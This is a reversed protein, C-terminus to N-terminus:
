WLSTRACRRERGSLDYWQDSMRLLGVRFGEPDSNADMATVKFFARCMGDLDARTYALTLNILHRRSYHSLVGTIGFDIYGVVNDPLIMLNAPHLDAHFLGHRFADGLFNEIVSRAFREPEFGALELRRITTEDGTERARLYGLLTSGEFFEMVLTRRTTYRWLVEPVREVPNDRANIRLQDMYRAENRYDLEEVTWGIFESLPEIMWALPKIRLGRITRVMTRMLRIDGAFDTEVNPRQVKVALKRGALYAVHVQGISATAIPETEFVDFTESPAAGIEARFIREVDAYGFPAVRDLLRSLAHCYEFPIVDTQLALMQGFKIFTGGLDELLMRLREPGCAGVAPLLRALLRAGRPWRALRPGLLHALGHLLAIRVIWAFRRLNAWVERMGGRRAVAGAADLHGHARVGLRLLGVAAGGADRPDRGGDAGAGRRFDPARDARRRGGRASAARPGPDAGPVPHAVELAAAPRAAPLDAHDASVAMRAVRRVLKSNVRFLIPYIEASGVTVFPVIPARNRLAMKVYEDRGFKGLKYADRYLTFAGAIGEPFMGLLGERELVWDANEQCAVIGGLKTMYNALFPMKILCPHILFRPIRGTERRLLHLAMVGDWPMFGRHVGTLVARGQRPVNELGRWEIRWYRDHLFRFLTRGYADIYGEDLGFPDFAPAPAQRAAATGFADRVAEASTRRPTFGLEREIKRGSVAASHRLGDLQAAPDAWGLRAALARFPRQLLADVAIRRTGALRLAGRVPVAGAPAVHYAGAGRELACRVAEALDEPHLIQLAPDYGAPVVAARGRLLRCLHDRGDHVAVPAPRLVVMEAGAAALREGLRRELERWAGAVPHDVPLRDDEGLCGTNHHSPPHVATSSLLVVRLSGCRAALTRACHEGFRDAHALDPRADRAGAPPPRYVIAEVDVGLGEGSLGAPVAALREALLATLGDAPGILVVRAM